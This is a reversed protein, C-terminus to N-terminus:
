CITSRVILGKQGRPFHNVCDDAVNLAGGQGISANQYNPTGKTFTEPARDVQGISTPSTREGDNLLRQRLFEVDICVFESCEDDPNVREHRGMPEEHSPERHFREEGLNLLEHIVTRIFRLTM